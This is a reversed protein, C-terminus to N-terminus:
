SLLGKLQYAENLHVLNHRTAPMLLLGATTRKSWYDILGLAERRVHGNTLLVQIRLPDVKKTLEHPQLNRIIDQTRKGVAQRYTRLAELNISQSLSEVEECPMANGTDTQHIQLREKWNENEFVTIEGAILTNMTCDEIRALHWINWAISHEHKKPIRRFVSETIDNLVLDELSNLPDGDSIYSSHYRAHLHLCAELANPFDSTKTLLARLTTQNRNCEKRLQTFRDM